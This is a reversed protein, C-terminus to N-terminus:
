AAVHIEASSGLRQAISPVDPAGLLTGLGLGPLGVHGSRKQGDALHARERESVIAEADGRRAAHALDLPELLSAPERVLQRGLPTRRQSISRPRHGFAM